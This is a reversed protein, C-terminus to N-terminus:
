EFPGTHLLCGLHLDDLGELGLRLSDGYEAHTDTLTPQLLVHVKQM